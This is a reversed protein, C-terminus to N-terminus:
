TARTCWAGHATAVKVPSTWVTAGQARHFGPGLAVLDAVRGPGEDVVAEVVQPRCLGAGTRLTDAAHAARRDAPDMVAAIGGQAWATASDQVSRKTLVLFGVM